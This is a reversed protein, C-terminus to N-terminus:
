ANPLSYYNKGKVTERTILGDNFLRTVCATVRSASIGSAVISPVGKHIESLSYVTEPEMWELIDARFAENQIQQATPKRVATAKKDLQAIRGDFFEVMEADNISEYYARAKEFGDRITM